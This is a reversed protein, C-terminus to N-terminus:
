ILSNHCWCEAPKSPYFLWLVSYTYSLSTNIFDSYLSLLTRYPKHNWIYPMAIIFMLNTTTTAGPLLHLPRPEWLHYVSWKLETINENKWSMQCLITFQYAKSSSLLLYVFIRFTVGPPIITLMAAKWFTIGQTNQIISINWLLKFTGGVRAGNHHGNTYAKM